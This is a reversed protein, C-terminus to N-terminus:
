GDQSWLLAGLPIGMFFVFAAGVRSLAFVGALGGVLLLIGLVALAKPGWAPRWPSTPLYFHGGLVGWGFPIVPHTLSWERQVESITNGPGQMYLWVDWASLIAIILIVAVETKKPRWKM